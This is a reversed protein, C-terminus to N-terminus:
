STEQPTIRITAETLTLLRLYNTPSPDNAFKEVHQLWESMERSM